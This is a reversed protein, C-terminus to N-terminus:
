NTIENSKKITKGNMTLYIIGLFVASHLLLGMPTPCGSASSVWGGLIRNVFIFTKPNAIIYFIAASMLSIKMKMPADDRSRIMMSGYTIALFVFVHLLFGNITPCDGNMVWKGFLKSSAKYTAQNMVIYFICAAFLSIIFKQRAVEGNCGCGCDKFIGM